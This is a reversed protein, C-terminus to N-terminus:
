PTLDIVTVEPPALFRMPPGWFGAGNSVYVASGDQRSLGQTHRNVWRTVYSFPWIQGGHTHGSLQLDFLGETGKIVQPRHKLLAVFRGSSFTLGEPFRESEFFGRGSFALDDLGVLTIGAVDLRGNRVLTLGARKMFEVVQDIGTYFEHNGTVAFAGYRAGHAALMEAERARFSMDGDVLDGTVLLLDPKAARVIDMVKALRGPTYLGGIHVDTLHVLRLREVGEPLKATKLTLDVRRVDWAEYFSYLVAAAILCLTVPARWYPVFFRRPNPKVGFAFGMFGDVLCATLSLVDMFFFGMCAMGVVAVWTFSLAFLLEATRGTGFVGLRSAFPLAMGALAWLAYAANWWGGGFGSYLKWYLYLNTIVLFALVSRIL